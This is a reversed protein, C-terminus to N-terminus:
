RKLAEDPALAWRQNDSIDEHFWSETAAFVQVRKSSITANIDDLKNLASRVNSCMIHPLVKSSKRPVFLNSACKTTCQRNQMNSQFNHHNFSTPRRQSPDADTLFTRSFKTPKPPKEGEVPRFRRWQRSLASILRCDSNCGDCM